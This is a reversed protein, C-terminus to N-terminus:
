EGISFQFTYTEAAKPTGALTITLANVSETYSFGVTGTGGNRVVQAFPVGSFTGSPFNVTISPDATIGGSGVTITFKGRKYSGSIASVQVQAGFGSNGINAASLKAGPALASIVRNVAEITLKQSEYNQPDGKLANLTQVSIPRITM